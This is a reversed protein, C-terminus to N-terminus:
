AAAAPAATPAHTILMRFVTTDLIYKEQLAKSINSEGEFIVNVYFGDQHKKNAVRVFQRKDMKQVAEVKGGVDTIDASLKDVLEQITDEQGATNLIFLGEYRKM